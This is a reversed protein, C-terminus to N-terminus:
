GWRSRPPRLAARVQSQMRLHRLHALRHCVDSYSYGRVIGEFFRPAEVVAFRVHKLRGDVIEASIDGHGEVRTVHHVHITANTAM